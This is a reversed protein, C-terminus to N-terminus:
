RTTNKHLWHLPACKYFKKFDSSFYFQNSYGLQEACEGVSKGNRLLSAAKLMRKRRIFKKLPMGSVRYWETLEAFSPKDLKIDRLEYEIGNEILWKEARQCTTCRPYCIFKVM